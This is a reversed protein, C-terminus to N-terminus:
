WVAAKLEDWEDDPGDGVFNGQQLFSLAVLSLQSPAISWDFEGLLNLNSHPRPKVAHFVPIAATKLVTWRRHQLMKMPELSLCNSKAAAKFVVSEIKVSFM